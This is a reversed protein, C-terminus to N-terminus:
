ITFTFSFHTFSGSKKLYARVSSSFPSLPQNGHQKDLVVVIFRQSVILFSVLVDDLQMYETRALLCRAMIPKFM